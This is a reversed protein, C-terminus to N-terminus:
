MNKRWSRLRAAAVALMLSLGALAFASWLHPDRGDGTKPVGPPVERTNTVTFGHTADGTIKTSYGPVSTETVTYAIPTGDDHYKPLGTFSGTWNSDASLTLTKGTDAGDALLKVTVAPGKPGVWVKTVPVSVTETNTNTITFGAADGTIEASYNEVPDETVTYAIPTGDAYKPLDDFSDSWGNDASLTLTKGTDVGDALLRVTVSGGEPGVWRKTVLVSTTEPTYSNTVTYGGTADGSIVATYGEPVEVEGVTYVIDRGNTKQDLETWTHSWQNGGSLEVPGGSPQGDAYLQVQIIGPRKGDQDNADDWAKTVTVSTKGPTYSNTIATGEISTAYNDVADETVTYAIETGDANYKPLGDFSFAWGDAETVSKSGVETGDALLRVTISRPRVGDQNDADDWTKTGSIDVTETNANTITFGTAASGSVATDYKDPDVGSVEAETVTYAVESGDANYKPLGDFSGAWGGDADLTLTQGPVEAGDALLKVTVASGAPGVWTKTVPVSVTETNANTITFGTAASGSISTAYNAVPDESVTYAIEHGDTAYQRLGSFEGSWGGDASLTLTQGPVEAGDALLKVTVPGGEPGVWVKTVSVSIKIPKNTVTQLAGGDPSVTLTFEEGNLEYGVPPTKEKVKYTGSTLSGSTVTGDAGTTLEFTTGDPRTVEFVAGALVITNNDADVKTIKIKNALNGTGSGGSDASQHTATTTKTQETSTLEMNNRLRTGPTYTTRYVLRYQDGNVNGMNLTFFKGDAAINLTFSGKDGAVTAGNVLNITEYAQVTNGYADMAVRILRFSDAIYTESGTGESLHDSVAVNTVNAKKHNIRVWWEAQNEDSTSQGWKALIEDDLQKPGVVTVSVPVVASGVAIQFTNVEDLTIQERDFRAALRINGRVNEKGEVWDTFTVRVTGGTTGPDVHATAIVTTGDDGYINFDVSASDSPFKMENPLTIDFYDGEHLDAGSSSADWDMALYFSDTWFVKNVDQGNLNQITLSTVTAPVEKPTGGGRSPAMAPASMLAMDASLDEGDSPDDEAVPEADPEAGSETLDTEDPVAEESGETEEAPAEEAAPESVDDGDELLAEEPVAEEDEVLTAAAPRSPEEADAFASWGAVGFLLAFALLLALPKQLRRLM